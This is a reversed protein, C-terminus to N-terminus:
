SSASSETALEAEIVKYFAEAPQAGTLLVGNVFFAPTGTVGAGEAAEADNTVTARHAGSSLCTQFAETDLGIETAYGLLHEEQLAKQNEFLKDHFEWFMGQDGACASAEAAPRARPHISVLPLHRYVVRVDEPYKALVQKVVADARKCFPCEFDSFEIITIRANEPGRAPGTAAIEYRPAEIIIVVDARARISKEADAERRAQLFMRIRESMADFTEGQMKDPNEDFFARMEEESVSGLALVEKAILGERDTQQREAETIFVLESVMRDLSSSRLEYLKGPNGGRTQRNFLDEKIWADLEAVTIKRGAVEAVVTSDGISGPPASVSPTASPQCGALALASALIVFVSAARVGCRVIM